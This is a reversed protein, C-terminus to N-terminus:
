DIRQSCHLEQGVARVKVGVCRGARRACHAGRAPDVQQRQFVIARWIDWSAVDVQRRRRIWCVSQAKHDLAGARYASLATQPHVDGLLAGLKIPRRKALELLFVFVCM